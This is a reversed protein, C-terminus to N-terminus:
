QGMARARREGTPSLPTSSGDELVKFKQVARTTGEDVLQQGLVTLQKSEREPEPSELVSPYGLKYTAITQTLSLDLDRKSILAGFLRTLRGPRAGNCEGIWEKRLRPVLRRMIKHRAPSVRPATKGFAAVLMAKIEELEAEPVPVGFQQRELFMTIGREYAKALKFVEYAGDHVALFFHALNSGGGLLFNALPAHPIKSIKILTKFYEKVMQDDTVENSVYGM